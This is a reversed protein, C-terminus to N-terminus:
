NERTAMSREVARHLADPTDDAGGDKRVQSAAETVRITAELRKELREIREDKRRDRAEAAILMAKLTTIEELLDATKPM